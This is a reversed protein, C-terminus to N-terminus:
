LIMVRRQVNLNNHKEKYAKLEDVRRLFITGAEKRKAKAQEAEALRKAKAQEAEALRVQKKAIEHHHIWLGLEHHSMTDIRDRVEDDLPALSLIRIKMGIIADRRFIRNLARGEVSRAIRVWTPVASVFITEDLELPTFQRSPKVGTAKSLSATLIEVMTRRQEFTTRSNVIVQPHVCHEEQITREPFLDLFYDCASGGFAVMTDLNPFIEKSLVQTFVNAMLEDTLSLLAKYGAKDAEVDAYRHKYPSRDIIIVRKKLYDIADELSFGLLLNLIQRMIFNLKAICPQSLDDRIPDYNLALLLEADESNESGTKPYSVTLREKM